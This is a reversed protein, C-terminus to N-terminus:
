AERDERDRKKSKAMEEEWASMERSLEEEEAAGMAYVYPHMSAKYTSRVDQDFLPGTQMHPWDDSGELGSDKQLKLNHVMTEYCIEFAEPNISNYSDKLMQCEGVLWFWQKKNLEAEGM